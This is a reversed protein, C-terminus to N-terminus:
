ITRSYNLAPSTQIHGSKTVVIVDVQWKRAIALVHNTGAMFMVKTLADALTCTAALVTVSAIDSPSCATKPDFIHHNKLDSSFSCHADSSTAVARGDSMIRAVLANLKRPNEVGISWPQSEPSHGLTSWEGTDILAHEIGQARLADRALDSAYGQAIGNLTLAMNPKLFRIRAASIEVNHWGTKDRAIKLENPTPLRHMSKASQWANWIPQVTVDFAGHSRASVSAAISLVNVLDPDPHLVIGDRNLRCLTSDPIFLSMHQEVHRIAKVAADLGADAREASAHGARLSLTTGLGVMLRERWRLTNPKTHGSFTLAASSMGMALRLCQRRSLSISNSIEHM